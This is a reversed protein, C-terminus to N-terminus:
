REHVIRGGVMTVDVEVELLAEPGRGFPDLSLVVLDALKGPELSGRVAQAGEAAASGLTYARVAEELTLRQEPYWGGEPAGDVDQRTVAAHLSRLPEIREVPADTGFALPAGAELLSRWAYAHRARAGWHQDAVLRDAVAHIPQMSAVVDLQRFRPVDDPHVLQAHEVRFLARRTAEDQARAWEMADLVMRVAGDGIAHVAVALGARAAQVLDRRLGEPDLTAIGRDGPQGEYDDLLFATRSGLAGDAFLKVPGLRLWDDGFGTEMGLRSAAGLEAHPLGHFVRLSLADARRLAAFARLSPAGELNHIGVIGVAAAVPLARRIAEALEAVTPEPVAHRVLEQAREFLVGTPQGRADREIRGGPVDLTNPGIGAARLAAANLWLAHGDHSSLVAPRRGTVRDLAAATPLRGWRNRDWGRGELWAGPPLSGAARQVLALGEELTRAPDLNVRERSLAYWGFHVHADIFGPLLARGRLDVVRTRPGRLGDLCEAQDVAVIEHGRVALARPRGADGTYVTGGTFLVDARGDTSSM